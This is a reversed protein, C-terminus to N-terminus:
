PLIKHVAVLREACDYEQCAWLVSVLNGIEADKTNAQKWDLLLQYIVEDVGRQRYNEEFQEIQGDSYSLKRAIDRWGHGLHTKVLFIDEMTIEETCVSLREVDTPMRRFKPKSWSQEPSTSGNAPYHNVNCIYNTRSGIKVGNSNVINYNVINGGQTKCQRSKTRTKVNPKKQEKPDAESSKADGLGQEKPSQETNAPIAGNPLSKQEQSSTVDISDPTASVSPIKKTDNTADPDFNHTNFEPKIRPPDPKADTTLMYFRRSLNSLIPM